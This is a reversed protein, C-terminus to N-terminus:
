STSHNTCDVWSIRVILLAEVRHLKPFGSAMNTNLNFLIDAIITAIGDIVAAITHIITL